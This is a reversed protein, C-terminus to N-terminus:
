KPKLEQLRRDIDAIATVIRYIDTDPLSTVIESASRQGLSSMLDRWKRVALADPIANAAMFPVLEALALQARERLSSDASAMAYTVSSFAGQANKLAWRALDAADDVPEPKGRARAVRDGLARLLGGPM